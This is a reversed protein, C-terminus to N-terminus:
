ISTVGDKSILKIGRYCRDQKGSFSHRVLRINSVAAKLSRGFVSKSSHYNMGQSISWDCWAQYLDDFKVEYSSGLITCERVFKSVPSALDSLDQLLEKGSSPQIFRVRDLLRALGAISWNLISPLETLLKDTLTIDEKGYFSKNFALIIFRSSIAGSSDNFMPVENSLILFRAVMHGIWADKHKRNITQDDEGSVSLLTELFSTHDVKNSLRADAIIALQKGILPQLGFEGSLGKVNPSAVNDKGLLSTLVRVITGKGSRPLGIFAFIKQFKTNTTLFLGFLEQLCKISSIDNKNDADVLEDAWVQKLFKIWLKPKPASVDYDYGLCNCNFFAPTHQLLKKTTIHLLGNKCSILESPDPTYDPADPLWCPISASDSVHVLPKLTNVVKSLLQPDLNLQILKLSDTKSVNVKASKLFKAVISTIDDDSIPDYHTGNWIYWMDKHHHITPLGNHKYNQSIFLEAIKMPKKPELIAPKIWGNQKALHYVTGFGVVKDNNGFTSWKKECIGNKIDDSHKNSGLSWEKWIEFGCKWNSSHLAMGVKLWTDYEAALLSALASNIYYININTEKISKASLAQKTVFTPQSVTISKKALKKTAKDILEEFELISSHEGYEFVKVMRPKKTDKWNTTGPVRLIGASNTTVGDDAYLGLLKTLTKLKKSIIVWKDPSVNSDVTWWCHLGGGSLVITPLPLLTDNCFKNVASIADNKTNYHSTAKHGRSGYDIDIVFSRIFSVNKSNRRGSDDAYTAIGVYYCQEHPLNSCLAKAVEKISSYFKTVRTQRIFIVYFGVTPLVYKLFSLIDNYMIKSSKDQRAFTISVNSANANISTSKSM